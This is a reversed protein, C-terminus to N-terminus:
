EIPYGLHVGPVCSALGSGAGCHPLGNIPPEAEGATVSEAYPSYHEFLAQEIVARRLALMQPVALANALAQPDPERRTGSLALPTALGSELNLSARWLGRKRVLTGLQSDNFRPSSFLGFM